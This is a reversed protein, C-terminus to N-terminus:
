GRACELKRIAPMSLKTLGTDSAVATDYLSLSLAFPGSPGAYLWNGPQPLRGIRIDFSGDQRRLIGRSHTSVPIAPDDVAYPLGNRLVQLTWRRASPTEGTVAYVCTADLADGNDDARRIFTLGEAAALPLGGSRSFYARSYPDPNSEGIGPNASWGDINMAGLAPLRDTAWIASGVGLGLALATGYILALLDRIM